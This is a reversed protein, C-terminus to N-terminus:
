EGDDSDIVVAGLAAESLRADTQNPRIANPV